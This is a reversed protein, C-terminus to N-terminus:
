RHSGESGDLPRHIGRRRDLARDSADAPELVEIRVTAPASRVPGDEVELQFVYTGPQAARFAPRAGDREDLAVWPGDLQRWRHRLAGAAVGRSASGDLVVRDGQRATAGARAVATPLPAGAAANVRLRVPVGPGADDEVSLELVFSGPEFAVFTAAARDADTLGGAPGAVQRWAFRGAPGTVSAAGDLVVPEGVQAARVPAIRAEPLARGPASVYVDVRGAPFVGWPGDLRVEFAYRGPTSPVARAVPRAEGELSAPPGDVQRWAFAHGLAVSASADLRVAEGAVGTVPSVALATPVTGSPPVGVVQVPATAAGGQGDNAELELEVLGRRARFTSLPGTVDGMVPFGLTQAWSLSVPDGNPDRTASGDLLVDEGYSVVLRDPDPRPPVNRVRAVLVAPASTVVGCTAVGEFRYEGAARAVFRPALSAAGRLAVAAGSVQRWRVDCPIATRLGAGLRLLGPAGEVPAGAILEPRDVILPDLGAALEAGDSLGDGDTDARRPDTAALYEQRATLGDGDQDLDADSAADPDLGNALEWADPLGDCDRDGACAGTGGAVAFVEVRGNQTNTVLVRGRPDVAVDLPVDLAGVGRGHAGLTGLPTGAADLAVVQSQFTDVVYLTGDAGVAVGGPRVLGAAAGDVVVGADAGDLGLVRVRAGQADSVYVRGAAVDIAIGAPRGGIAVSGARTGDAEYMRVTGTSADGVYIRGTVPHVAIAVPARLEGEGAGLAGVRRGGPLYVDVAGADLDGVYVLGGPSLAIGGPTGEVPLTRARAGDASIVVVVRRRPDVVWTEGGSGAAVRAPFPAAAAALPALPDAWRVAVDVSRSATRGLADTVALRITFTGATRPATWRALPGDGAVTGGTATWAYALGDGHGAASLTVTEGVRVSTASADLADVGPPNTVAVTDVTLAKSGTAAAGFTGGTDTATCTVTYTGPAPTSWDVAATATATPGPFSVTQSASGALGGGSVDIRLSAIGADDTASCSVTANASAPLPTPSVSLATVAPPSNGLGMAAVTAPFSGATLALAALVLLTHVPPVLQM